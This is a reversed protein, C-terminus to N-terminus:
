GDFEKKEQYRKIGKAPNDERWGWANALTFMTSLLALVRNAQYPTKKHELHLTEIDRRRLYAVQQNGFVPLIINKLLRQDEQLSKPRKNKEAHYLIYDSALDNMTPLGRTEKKMAVPDQGHIVGSLYKKALSRAEETTIQGHTGLKFMKKVRQASRYQICYTRRGSPLVILGFGKLESDWLKIIKQPDPTISEVFRKTFKFM